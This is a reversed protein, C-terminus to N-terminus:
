VKADTAEIEALTERAKDWCEVDTCGGEGIWELASTAKALKSQIDETMNLQKTLWECEAELESIRALAMELECDAKETAEHELVKAVKAAIDMDQKGIYESM